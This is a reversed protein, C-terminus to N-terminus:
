YSYVRCDHYSVDNVGDNSLYNIVDEKITVLRTKIEFLVSLAIVDCFMHYIYCNIVHCWLSNVHVPCM